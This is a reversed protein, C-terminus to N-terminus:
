YRRGPEAPNNYVAGFVEDIRRTMEDNRMTQAQTSIAVVVLSLIMMIKKM